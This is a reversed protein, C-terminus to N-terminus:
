KLNSTKGIIIEEEVVYRRPSKASYRQGYLSVICTAVCELLVLLAVVLVSMIM